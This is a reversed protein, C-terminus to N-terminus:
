LTCLIYYINRWWCFNCTYIKFINTIQMNLFQSLSIAKSSMFFPSM